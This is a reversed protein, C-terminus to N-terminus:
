RPVDNIGGNTIQGNFAEAWLQRGDALLQRFTAVGNIDTSVYNAPNNATDIIAQRNEATDELFHGAVNRFIHPANQECIQVAEQEVISAAEPEENVLTPVLPPAGAGVSVVVAAITAQVKELLPMYEADSQKHLRHM